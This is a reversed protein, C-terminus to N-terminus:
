MNLYVETVDNDPPSKTNTDTSSITDSVQPCSFLIHLSFQIIDQQYEWNYQLCSVNTTHKPESENVSHFIELEEDDSGDSNDFVLPADNPSNENEDESDSSEEEDFHLSGEVQLVKSM